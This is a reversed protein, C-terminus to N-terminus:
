FNLCDVDMFVKDVDECLDRLIFRGFGQTELRSQKMKTSKFAMVSQGKLFKWKVVYQETRCRSEDFLTTM